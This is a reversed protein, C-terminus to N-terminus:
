SNRYAYLPSSGCGRTSNLLRPDTVPPFSFASDHSKPVGWVGFIGVWSQNVISHAGKRHLREICQDSIM